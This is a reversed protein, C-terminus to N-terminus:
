ETTDKICAEYGEERSKKILVLHEEKTIWEQNLFEEFTKFSHAYKWDFDQIEKTTKFTM